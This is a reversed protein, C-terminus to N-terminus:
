RTISSCSTTSTRKSTNSAPLCRWDLVVCIAVRMLLLWHIELAVSWTRWAAFYKISNRKRYFVTHSWYLCKWISVRCCIVSRLLKISGIWAHRKWVRQFWKRPSILRCRNQHIAALGSFTDYFITQYTAKRTHRIQTVCKSLITLKRAYGSTCWNVLVIWYTPSSYLNVPIFHWCRHTPWCNRVSFSLKSHMSENTPTGPKCWSMTWNNSVYKISKNHWISWKISPRRTSITWNNSVIKWRKRFPRRHEYWIPEEVMYFVRFLQSNRAPQLNRFFQVGVHQGRIMALITWMMSPM